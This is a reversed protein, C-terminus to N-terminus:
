YNIDAIYSDKRYVNSRKINIEKKGTYKCNILILQKIQNM